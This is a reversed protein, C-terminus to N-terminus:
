DESNIYKTFDERALVTKGEKSQQIGRRVSALAEPNEYLWKEREPIDEPELIIRREEDCTVRFRKVGRALDGVYIRDESDTQRTTIIPQGM